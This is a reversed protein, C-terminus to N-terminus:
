PKGDMYGQQYSGTHHMLVPCSLCMWMQIDATVQKLGTCMCFISVSHDWFVILLLV